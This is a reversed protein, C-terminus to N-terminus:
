AYRGAEFRDQLVRDGAKEGDKGLSETGEDGVVRNRAAEKPLSIEQWGQFRWVSYRKEKTWEEAQFARYPGM